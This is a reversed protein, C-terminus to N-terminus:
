EDICSGVESQSAKNSAPKIAKNSEELSAKHTEQKRAKNGNDITGMIEGLIDPTAKRSM